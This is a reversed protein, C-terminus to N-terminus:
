HDDGYIVERSFTVPRGVKVTRLRLPRAAKGQRAGGGGTAAAELLSRVEGQLSRNNRRARAKLAAIVADDLDRVHIAPM